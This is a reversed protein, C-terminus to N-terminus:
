IFFQNTRGFDNEGFPRYEFTRNDTVSRNFPFISRQNSGFDHLVPNQNFLPISLADNVLGRELDSLPDIDLQSVIPYQLIHKVTVDCSVVRVAYKFQLTLVHSVFQFEFLSRLKFSRNGSCFYIIYTSFLVPKQLVGPKFQM